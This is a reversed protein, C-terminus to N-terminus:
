IIHSASSHCTWRTPQISCCVFGFCTHPPLFTIHMRAIYRLRYCRGYNADAASASYAARNMAARSATSIRLIKDSKPYWWGGVDRSQSLAQARPNAVLITLCRRDFDISMLNWQIPSLIWSCWNWTRQRFPARLKASKKVFIKDTVAWLAVIGSKTLDPSDGM